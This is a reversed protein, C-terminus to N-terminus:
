SRRGTGPEQAKALSLEGGETSISVAGAVEEVKAVSVRGGDVDGLRGQIRRISDLAAARLDPVLLAKTLPLLPEVARVTGVVGLAKVAATRVETSEHGLLSILPSEARV